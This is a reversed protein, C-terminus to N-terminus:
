NRLRSTRIPSIAGSSSRSKRRSKQSSSGEPVDMDAFLMGYDPQDVGLQAQVARSTLGIKRGVLRRGSELANKTNAEQIAYAAAVGGDSIRDRLPRVPTRTEAAVRLEAAIQEIIQQDLREQDPM